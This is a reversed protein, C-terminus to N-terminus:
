LGGIQTLRRFTASWRVQETTLIRITLVCCNFMGERLSVENDEAAEYDYEARARGGADASAAAPAAAVAHQGM